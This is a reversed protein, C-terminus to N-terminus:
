RNYPFLLNALIDTPLRELGMDEQEWGVNQLYMTTYCSLYCQMQADHHVQKTMPWKQETFM